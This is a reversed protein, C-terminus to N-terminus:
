EDKPCPAPLVMTADAEEKPASERIVASFLREHNERQTEFHCCLLPFILFRIGGFASGEIFCYSAACLVPQPSTTM